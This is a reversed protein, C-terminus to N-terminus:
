RRSLHQSDGHEQLHLSPPLFSGLGVIVIACLAGGVATITAVAIALLGRQSDSSTLHRTIINPLGLSAVASLLVIGSSLGSFAGVTAAPYDRAALTWFAFGLVALSATNTLLVLSGRYLPDRIIGQAKALLQSLSAPM